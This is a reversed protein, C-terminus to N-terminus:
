LEHCGGTLESIRNASHCDQTETIMRNEYPPNPHTHETALGMGEFLLVKQTEEKGAEKKGGNLLQGKHWAGHPACRAM